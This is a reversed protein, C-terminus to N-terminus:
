LRLPYPRRYFSNKARILGTLLSFTLLSRDLHLLSGEIQPDGRWMNPLVDEKLKKTSSMRPEAAMGLDEKTAILDHHLAGRSVAQDHREQM